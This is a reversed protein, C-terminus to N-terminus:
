LGASLFSAAIHVHIPSLALVNLAPLHLAYKTRDQVAVLSSFPFSCFSLPGHAHWQNVKTDSCIL